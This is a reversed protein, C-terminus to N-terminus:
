DLRNYNFVLQQQVNLSAARWFSDWRSHRWRSCRRAATRRRCRPATTLLWARPPRSRCPCPRYLVIMKLRRPLQQAGDIYIKFFARYSLDTVGDTLTLPKDVTRTSPFHLRSRCLPINELLERFRITKLGSSKSEKKGALKFCADRWPKLECLRGTSENGPMLKDVSYTSTTNPTSPQLEALDRSRRTTGHRSKFVYIM